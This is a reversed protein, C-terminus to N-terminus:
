AVGRDSDLAPTYESLISGKPHKLVMKSYVSALASDCYEDWMDMAEDRNSFSVKFPEKKGIKYLIIQYM